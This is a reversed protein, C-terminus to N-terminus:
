LNNIAEIAEIDKGTEEERRRDCIKPDTSSLALYGGTLLPVHLPSHWRLCGRLSM